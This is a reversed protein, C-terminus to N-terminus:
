RHRYIKIIVEKRELCFILGLKREKGQLKLCYIKEKQKKNDQPHCDPYALPPAVQRSVDWPNDRCRASIAPKSRLTPQQHLRGLDEGNFAWAPSSSSIGLRHKILAQLPEVLAASAPSRLSALWSRGGGVV